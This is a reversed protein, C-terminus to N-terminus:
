TPNVVTITQQASNAPDTDTLTVRVARISNRETATLARTTVTSSCSTADVACGGLVASAGDLYTLALTSQHGPFVRTLVRTEAAATYTPMGTADLVISSGQLDPTSIRTVVEGTVCGATAPPCTTLVIRFPVREIGSRPTFTYFTASTPTAEAFASAAPYVEVPNDVFRLLGAISLIANQQQSVVQSTATTRRVSDLASTVLGTVLVMLVSFVGLAVLLEVLTFGDDREEGGAREVTM